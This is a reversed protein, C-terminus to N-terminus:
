FNRYYKWTRTFIIKFHNFDIKEIDKFNYFTIKESLDRFFIDGPNYKTLLTIKNNKSLFKNIYNKIMNTDGAVLDLIFDVIILINSKQIDLIDNIKTIHSELNYITGIIDNENEWKIGYDSHNHIIPIGMAEFEQVTNANGDSNTLRLGIFCQSYIDPMDKNELNPKSSHIFDFEPLEKKIINILDTNYIEKNDNKETIGDYIYIKNGMSSIPKFINKDVLNFELQTNEVGLKLLRERINDSIALVCDYKVKKINPLDSGGLMVYKEGTHDKLLNFDEEQYLGFFITKDENKEYEQLNFKKLFNDKLHNLSKSIHIQSIKENKIYEQLNIIPNQNLDMEMVKHSLNLDWTIFKNYYEKSILKKKKVLHM